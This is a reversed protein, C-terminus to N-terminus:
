LLLPKGILALRNETSAFIIFVAQQQLNDSGHLYRDFNFQKM